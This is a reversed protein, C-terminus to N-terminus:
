PYPALLAKWRRDAHLPRLDASIRLREAMWAPDSARALARTAAALALEPLQRRTAVEARLLERAALVDEPGIPRLQSGLAVALGLDQEAGELDGVLKRAVGRVEHLAARVAPPAADEAAFAELDTTLALREHLREDDLEAIRYDTLTEGLLAPYRPGLAARLLPAFLPSRARLLYRLQRRLEPEEPDLLAFAEVAESSRGLEALAVGRLLPQPAQLAAQWRGLVLALGPVEHDGPSAEGPERVGPRAGVVAIRRIRARIKPGDFDREGTSRLVLSYAGAPVPRPAPRSLSGPHDGNEELYLRGHGSLVQVRARHQSHAGASPTPWIGIEAVEQPLSGALVTTRQLHGGGGGGGVGLDLLAPGGERPRLAVTVRAGWEAREVELDIELTLPEGTLEIPFSALEGLDATAEVVLEDRVSDLRLALPEHVLWGAALPADFRLEIRERRDVVARLRQSAVRLAQRQAATGAERRLASEAVRLADDLRLGQEHNTIAQLAADVDGGLALAEFGDGAAVTDGAAAFLEAVRRRLAQRDVEQAAQTIRQELARAAEGSLGFRALNEARAWIRALLPDALEPGSDDTGAAQSPLPPPPEGAVGLVCLQGVDGRRTEVLLEDAPDDDFNGALAPGLGGVQAMTFRGEADQRVLLLSAFPSGNDHLVALDMLGDGDFDGAHIRMAMSVRTAGAFSPWPLQAVTELAAGRRRVIYLGAPDGQPEGAAFADKSLATDDKALALLTEGDAGRLSAMGRVHGIRRRAGIQLEGHEGAELIRVDYARWAGAVVALEERGDGDFDGAALSNIDSALWDTPEHAPRRSWVGQEDPALRYLKRTYTGTGLYIERLGDGDLDAAVSSVPAHDEWRLLERPEGPGLEFLVTTDSAPHHGVVYAPGGPSRTLPLQHVWGFDIMLDSRAPGLATLGADMRHLTLQTRGTGPKLTMVEFRGDAALDTLYAHEYGGGICNGPALARVLPAVAERQPGAVGTDVATIFGPLDGRALAADARLGVWEPMAAQEPWRQGVQTALGALAPFRWQAAFQRGIRLAIGAERPDEAPLAMYAEVLVALAAQPDDRADMAEAWLLLADIVAGSDRHEPEAVFARLAAEADARLGRGLLREVSAAVGVFRQTAARELAQRALSAQLARAGLVLAVLGLVLLALQLLRWRRRTRRLEPDVALVDLLAQMSPWRDAPDPALGRRLAQDLWAPLIPAGAPRTPPGARMASAMRSTNGLYPRQGYLGEYLTVCFSFQDSAPGVDQDAHQEPSMYAPTGIAGNRGAVTVIDRIGSGLTSVAAGPEFRAIGFDAVRVRGDGGILLNDPKIDRHVLGAAHAAVIGQGAQVMVAVVAQWGRATEQWWDRLTRGAVFEMAVFVRGGVVGVDHIAVINPHALRALAQAERRLYDQRRSVRVVDSEPDMVKLAVKRDLEPDYAAYVVGMGGTGLIELVLYRGIHSPLLPAAALSAYGGDASRTVSAAPNAPEPSPHPDPPASVSGGDYGGTRAFPLAGGQGGAVDGAIGARV